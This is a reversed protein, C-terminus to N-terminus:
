FTNRATMNYFARANIVASNNYNGNRATKSSIYGIKNVASRGFKGFGSNKSLM